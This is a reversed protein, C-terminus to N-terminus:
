NPAIYQGNKFECNYKKPFIQDRKIWHENGYGSLAYAVKVMKEKVEIAPGCNTDDGEILAKRFTDIEKQRVANEEAIRKLFIANASDMLKIMTTHLSDPTIVWEGQQNIFGQQSESIFVRAMGEYFDGAAWMFNGQNIVNGSTDLYGRAYTIGDEFLFTIMGSHYAPPNYGLSKFKIPVITNGSKDIVGLKENSYVVALGDSFIEAGDFQPRIVMEGSTNIYGCKAVNMVKICVPAQGEHFGGISHDFRFDIAVNGQKDLAGWVKEFRVVALGESYGYGPDDFIPRAIMKGSKDIFGWKSSYKDEGVKVAALGEHFEQVEWFQPQIVVNGKKDIFGFKSDDGYMFAALGESYNNATYFKPQIVLRGEKNIYGYKDGVKVVALGEKFDHAFSIQPTKVFRGTKDFLFSYYYSRGFTNSQNNVFKYKVWFMGESVDKVEYTAEAYAQSISFLMSALAAFFYVKLRLIM